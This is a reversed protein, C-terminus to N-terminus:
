QAPWSGCWGVLEESGCSPCVSIICTAVSAESRELWWARVGVRLGHALGTRSDFKKGCACRMGKCPAVGLGNAQQGHRHLRRVLDDVGALGITTLVGTHLPLQREEGRRKKDSRGVDLSCKIRNALYRSLVGPCTHNRARAGFNGCGRSAVSIFQM